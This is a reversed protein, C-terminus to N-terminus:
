EHLPTLSRPSDLSELRSHLCTDAVYSEKPPHADAVEPWSCSRNLVHQLLHQSDVFSHDHTPTALEFREMPTLDVRHQLRFLTCCEELDRSGSRPDAM